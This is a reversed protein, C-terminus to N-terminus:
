VIGTSNGHNHRRISLKQLVARPSFSGLNNYKDSVLRETTDQNLKYTIHYNEDDDEDDDQAKATNENENYGRRPSVSGEQLRQNFEASDFLALLKNGKDSRNSRTSNNSEDRKFRKISATHRGSYNSLRRKLENKTSRFSNENFSKFENEYHTSIQKLIRKTRTKIRSLTSSRPLIAENTDDLEVIVDGTHNNDGIAADRMSVDQMEEGDVIITFDAFRNEDDTTDITEGDQNHYVYRIYHEYIPDTVPIEAAVVRARGEREIYDDIADTNADRISSDSIIDLATNQLEGSTMEFDKDDEVHKKKRNGFLRMPITFFSNFKGEVLDPSSKQTSEDGATIMHDNPDAYSITETGNHHFPLDETYATPLNDIRNFVFSSGLEKSPFYVIPSAPQM